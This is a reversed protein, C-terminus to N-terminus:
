KFFPAYHVKDGEKLSLRDSTGGNLELVASVKKGSSIRELSYPITNKVIKTITGEKSIFVMDLPILTNKMWMTCNQEVPLYFLMGSDKALSTRYMLGTEQQAPTLALEITLQHGHGKAGEITLQDNLAASCAIGAFLSIVLIILSSYHYKHFMPM